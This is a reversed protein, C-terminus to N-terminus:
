FRLRGYRIGVLFVARSKTKLPRKINKLEKGIYNGVDHLFEDLEDEAYYYPEADDAESFYYRGPFHEGEADNTVYYGMGPEEAVFYFRLSPYHKKLFAVVEDPESWATDTDFRLAGDDDDKDLDSWEGRCYIKKWDGGLLTVLNGLWSKGFGNEVLSEKRDELSKMKEYLDRVEKEDGTVVYSSFCWNPM